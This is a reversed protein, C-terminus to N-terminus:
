EASMAPKCRPSQALKKGNSDKKVKGLPWGNESVFAAKDALRYCSACLIAKATTLSGLIVREAAPKGCKEHYVIPKGQLDKGADVRIMRECKLEEAM